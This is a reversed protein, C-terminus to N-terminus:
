VPSGKKVSFSKVWSCSATIQNIRIGRITTPTKTPPANPIHPATMCPIKLLGSASGPMMPIEAPAAVPATSAMAVPKAVCLINVMGANANQPLIQATASVTKRAARFPFIGTIVNSRAPTATPISSPARVDPM